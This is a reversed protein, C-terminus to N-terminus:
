AAASVKTLASAPVFQPFIPAGFAQSTIAPSGKTIPELDPFAPHGSDGQNKGGLGM